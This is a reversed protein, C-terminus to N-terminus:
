QIQEVTLYISYQSPQPPPLPPLPPQPLPPTISKRNDDSNYNINYGGDIDISYNPSQNITVPEKIIASEKRVSANKSAKEIKKGKCM